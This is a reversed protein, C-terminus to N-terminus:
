SRQEILQDLGSLIRDLGFSWGNDPPADRLDDVAELIHHFRDARGRLLDGIAPRARRDATWPQTGSTMAAQTNRIHGSVLFVADIREAGSLPTGVFAGLASETWGIERPGLAREGTTATPLWPHRRWTERMAEAWREIRPRWGGAIRTLDPADGVATEIMVATLEAKNAVHRYLAMKTVDLSAAVRQMSVAAMGDADAVAIAADAIRHVTLVLRPARAPREDLGWLLEASTPESGEAATM